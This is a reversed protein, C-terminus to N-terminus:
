TNLHEQILHTYTLSHLMRKKISGKVMICHGEKDKVIDNTKFDIKDSIFIAVGVKKENGNADFITKWGRVKLRHTNKM